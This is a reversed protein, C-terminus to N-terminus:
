AARTIKLELLIRTKRKKWDAKRSSEIGIQKEINKMANQMTVRVTHESIGLAAAIQARKWGQIKGLTFVKKQQGALSQIALQLKRQLEKEYLLEAAACDQTPEEKSLGDKYRQELKQHRCYSIFVNKATQFVYAAMDEIQDFNERYSWLKLFVDQCLDKATNADHSWKLLHGYVVKEQEAYLCCFTQEINLERNLSRETAATSM